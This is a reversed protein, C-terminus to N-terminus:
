EKKEGMKAKRNKKGTRREKNCEEKNKRRGEEMEMKRKKWEKRM